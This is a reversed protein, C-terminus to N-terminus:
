TSRTWEVPYAAAVQESERVTRGDLLVVRGRGMSARDLVGVIPALEDGLLVVSLRGFADARVRLEPKPTYFLLVGAYLALATQHTELRIAVMDASAGPPAQVVDVAPPAYISIRSNATVAGIVPVSPAPPKPVKFGLGAELVTLLPVKFREALWVAEAIQLRREGALIKQLWNKNSPDYETSLGVRNKGIADLQADFWEAVPNPNQLRVKRETKDSRKAM